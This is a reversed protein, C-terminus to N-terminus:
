GLTKKAELWFGRLRVAVPGRTAIVSHLAELSSRHATTSFGPVIWPIAKLYWALAGVDGFRYVEDGQGSGVVRLGASEMQGVAAHLDWRPRPPPLPLDLLRYFDEHDGLQQTLFRGGPRLVRAVEAAVFAEHRDVILHFAGDRFPLRGASEAVAQEINDRAPEVQVVAVGHPRLRRAAVPLNPPWGETAVTRRPRGSLDALWEGGGTGLDLLDPSQTCREGVMGAFDWPLPDVTMRDGVWSFDWGAFPQSEAERLLDDLSRDCTM